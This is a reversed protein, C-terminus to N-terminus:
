NISEAKYVKKGGGILNVFIKILILFMLAAIIRTNVVYASFFGGTLSQTLNNLVFVYTGITLPNKHNGVLLWYFISYVLALWFPSFIIGILGFNAYVDGIFLTNAVGVWGQAVGVPELYIAAVRASEIFPLGLYSFIAISKGLLLEHMTPFIEFYSPLSQVQGILIRGIPGGYFNFIIDLAGFGANAYKVTYMYIPLPIMLLGFKFMKKYPINGSFSTIIFIFPLFYWALGSKSMNAGSIFLACSAIIIFINRWDKQKTYKYYSFAIYSALPIISQGIVNKILASGEFFRDYAIRATQIRDINGTLYMFLPAKYYSLYVVVGLSVLTIIYFFVKVRSDSDSFCYETKKSLFLKLNKDNKFGIVYNFFIVGIPFAVLTYYVTWLAYHYHIENQVFNDIIEGRVGLVMLNAGILSFIILQCLWLHTHPMYKNLRMDGFAIIFLKRSIFIIILTTFIYLLALTNVV